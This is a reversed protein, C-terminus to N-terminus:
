ASILGHSRLAGLVADLTARAQSDVTGGGSPGAIAAQQAGVVQVGGLTVKSGILGGASWAGSAFRAFGATGGTWVTMGEVPQVFRWGGATWCALAGAQGTWAGTPSTGVVWCQGPAPSGPPTAAGVAVVAPQVLIDLATLAENHQVEKQAQGPAILPLAHRATSEM